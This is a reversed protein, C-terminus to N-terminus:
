VTKKGWSGIRLIGKDIKRWPYEDALGLNEGANELTSIVNLYYLIKFRKLKNM